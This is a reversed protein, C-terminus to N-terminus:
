FYISFTITIDRKKSRERPLKPGEIKWAQIENKIFESVDDHGYHEALFASEEVSAEYDLVKLHELIVKVVEFHGKRAAFHVPTEYM